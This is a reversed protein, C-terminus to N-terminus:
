KRLKKFYVLGLGAVVIIALVAVIAYGYELPLSTGLFGSQPKPSPIISTASSTTQTPTPSTSPSLYPSLSPSSSPSPSLSPLPSTTPSSPSSTGDPVSVEFNTTAQGYIPTMLTPYYAYVKFSHWGSPVDNLTVTFPKDLSDTPQPWIEGKETGDLFYVIWSIWTYKSGQSISVTFVMSITSSTYYIDHTSLIRVIPLPITSQASVPNVIGFYSTLM